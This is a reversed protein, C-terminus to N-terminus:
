PNSHKKELSKIRAKLMKEVEGIGEQLIKLKDTEFYGRDGSLLIQTKM